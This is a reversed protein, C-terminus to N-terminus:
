LYFINMRHILNWLVINDPKDTPTSLPRKTVFHLTNWRTHDLTLRFYNLPRRPVKPLPYFGSLWSRRVGGEERSTAPLTLNTENLLRSPCPLPGFGERPSVRRLTVTRFRLGNPPVGNTRFGFFFFFFSNPVTVPNSGVLLTFFNKRRIIVTCFIKNNKIIGYM